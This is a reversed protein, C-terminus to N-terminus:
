KRIIAGIEKEFAQILRDMTKDIVKDTLTQEYDQLMFSVSYSKKDAGLNEGQYVDFVNIQELINKEYQFAIKKITDFTVTQDIVLSLDRRVEPFKSLEVFTNKESSQKFLYDWDIDAYFVAQKVEAKKAVSAKVLGVKAIEKKNVVYTLGYEFTASNEIPKTNSNKANMAVLVQNVFRSLAHFNVKLSKLQWSEAETNGTVFIALHKKEVLKDNIKHYTKGFDFMKLDKQRRNINHALVELGSFLMTQRMVGLDESLKNLIEVDNGPLDAQISAAYSPKTLSNTIIENFGVNALLNTIKTQSKEAEKEPFSSIFDTGLTESLEINNFGYIRLIEEIVDAERTVDVRYPPVKAVFGSETEELINIDLNELITKIVIKDLQKGILRDINKYLIPISFDAIPQPYFDTLESAIEGGAIEQVLIAAYKLAFLPMNPDTGREFRFSADTKLSHKQATKRVSVPNFYASELYIRSTTNSVGSNKGGFVGAIGMPEANNCIMLDTANLKREVDDLTTFPTAEPLTKVIIKQGNIANWDYAHMPQGLSHCIYNTIDVINNIPRVGIIELNKRLWEPSEAVQVGDITVGCFRPCDTPNEVSLEIPFNNNKVEFNQISPLTITRNLKAKIDRAVGLHSAADARNPTLGIEILMDAELNFYASAPTGNPLETDLVLIGESTGIGIEDAGCIMGESLHGYTKKSAIKFIAEGKQHDYITTGLSAIIVKQGAEVNSAGCVIQSPNENGINVTTLSLKKEKVEFRECTVVEGLVFGQLGGLISEKREISEVELGTGTLIDDIEQNTETINIFTKLWNLSIKM